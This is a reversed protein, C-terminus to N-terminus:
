PLPTPHAFYANVADHFQNGDSTYYTQRGAGTGFVVGFAGALALEDPHAFFYHVRNDRYHGDTGGCTASPVGFPIQWWLAPRGMATTLSSVWRLHDSFNPRTANTEDWYVPGRSGMTISCVGATGGNTEWFGADRDLAEVTVFDTLDARMALLFAAVSRARTDIEASTASTDDWSDGWSSAHLGILVRPALADRMAAFCQVLGAATNPVSACEPVDAFHLQATYADPTTHMSSLLQQMYGFFDPEIQVLAPQGFTGLRTLLTRVDTLYVHMRAADHLVEVHNEYELALQYYSFMPALGGNRQCADALIGAFEGAPSNWTTWGGMDSYGTLYTYHVDLTTGLMYVGARNSDYTPAGDLDNGMGVLFHANGRLTTAIAHARQAVSMPASGADGHAADGMPAVYADPQPPNVDAGNGDLRVVFADRAVSADTMANGSGCGAVLSLLGLCAVTRM